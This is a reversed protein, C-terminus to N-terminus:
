MEEPAEVGLLDLGRALVRKTSVCLGIRFDENPHGIVKCDRYFGSFDRSAEHLYAAIRHPARREAADDPISIAIKRTM